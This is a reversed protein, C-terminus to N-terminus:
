YTDNALDVAGPLALLLRTSPAPIGERLRWHDVYVGTPLWYEDTPLNDNVVIHGMRGNPSPVWFVNGAYQALLPALDVLQGCELYDWLQGDCLPNASFPPWDLEGTGSMPLVRIEPVDWLASPRTRVALLATVQRDIVWGLLARNHPVPVGHALVQRIEGSVRGGPRIEHPAGNHTRLPYITFLDDSDQSLMFFMSTGATRRMLVMSRFQGSTCYSMAALPYTSFLQSCSEFSEVQEALTCDTRDLPWGDQRPLDVDKTATAIDRM